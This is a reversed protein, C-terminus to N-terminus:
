YCYGPCYFKVSVNNSTRLSLDEKKLVQSSGGKGTRSSGRKGTLSCWRKGTLHIREKWKSLIRERKITFIREKRNTHIRKQPDERGQGLADKYKYKQFFQKKVNVLGKLFFSCLSEPLCGGGGGVEFPRVCM